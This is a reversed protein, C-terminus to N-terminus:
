NLMFLLIKCVANQINYVFIPITATLRSQKGSLKDTVLLSANIFAYIVSYGTPVASSHAPFLFGSIRELSACYSSVNFSQILIM